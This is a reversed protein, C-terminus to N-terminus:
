IRFKGQLGARAELIATGTRLKRDVGGASGARDNVVM